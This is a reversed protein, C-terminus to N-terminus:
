YRANIRKVIVTEFQINSSMGLLELAVRKRKLLRQTSSILFLVCKKFWM